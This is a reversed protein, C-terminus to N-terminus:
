LCILSRNPTCAPIYDLASQVAFSLYWFRLGTLEASFFQIVGCYHAPILYQHKRRNGLSAGAFLCRGLPFSVILSLGSFFLFGFLRLATLALHNPNLTQKSLAADFLSELLASKLIENLVGRLAPSTIFDGFGVGVTKRIVCSFALPEVYLAGVAGTFRM